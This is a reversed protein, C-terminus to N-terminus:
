KGLVMLMRRCNYFFNYVRIEEMVLYLFVYCYINREYCFIYGRGLLVIDYFLRYIKKSYFVYMVDFVYLKIMFIVVM